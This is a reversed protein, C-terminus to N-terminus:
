VGVDVPEKPPGDTLLVALHQGLAAPVFVHSSAAIEAHTWWRLEHLYEARLQEATFHPAPEFRETRVLHFVERQGDWQGDIFPIIHLRSWVHPGIEPDHLGVEERLERRLAAEVTEDGDIGGGPCAWRTGTPFEFRVLLVRDDPDLVV